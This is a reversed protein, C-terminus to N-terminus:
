SLHYFSLTKLQMRDEKELAGAKSVLGLGLTDQACWEGPVGPEAGAWSWAEDGFWLKRM